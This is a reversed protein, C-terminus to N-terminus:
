ATAYESLSIDESVGDCEVTATVYLTYDMGKKVTASKTTNISTGSTSFSWTKSFTGDDSELTMEGEISTTGTKGRINTNCKASTGSISLDVYATNVNEWRPTPQAVASVSFVCLLLVATLFASLKKGTKM